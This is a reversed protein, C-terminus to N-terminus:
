GVADCYDSASTSPYGVVCLNTVVMCSYRPLFSVEWLSHYYLVILAAIGRLADLLLLHPKQQMIDTNKELM